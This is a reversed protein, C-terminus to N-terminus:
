NQREIFTAVIYRGESPLGHLFPDYELANAKTIRGVFSGPEVDGYTPDQIYWGMFIYGEEAVATLTTGAQGTTITQTTEGIIYGGTLARFHVTHQKGFLPYVENFLINKRSSDIADYAYTSLDTRSPSTLGDSWKIFEYGNDAIAIVTTGYTGKVVTQTTAGEIRGGGKYLKASLGDYKMDFAYRMGGTQSTEFDCSVYRCFGYNLSVTEPLEPEQVACSALEFSLLAILALAICSLTKKM